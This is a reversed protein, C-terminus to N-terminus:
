WWSSRPSRGPRGGARLDALHGAGVQDALRDAPDGVLFRDGLQEVSGAVARAAASCLGAARMSSVRPRIRECFAAGGHHRDARTASRASGRRRCAPARRTALAGAASARGFGGGTTSAAGGGGGGGIGSTDAPGATRRRRRGGVLAVHALRGPSRAPTRRRRRADALASRSRRRRRAPAAAARRPPRHRWRRTSLRPTRPRRARAGARRGLLAVGDDGLMKALGGVHQHEGVRRRRRRAQGLCASALPPMRRSSAPLATPQRGVLMWCWGQDIAPRAGVAVAAGVRHLSERGRRPRPPPALRWISSRM